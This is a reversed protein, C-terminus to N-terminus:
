PTPDLRNSARSAHGPLIALVDREAELWRDRDSLTPRGRLRSLEDARRAIRVQIDMLEDETTAAFRVPISLNM